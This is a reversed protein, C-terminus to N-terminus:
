CAFIGFSSMCILVWVFAHGIDFCGEEMVRGSGSHLLSQVIGACGASSLAVMMGGTITGKKM